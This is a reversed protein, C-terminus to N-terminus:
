SSCIRQSESLFTSCLPILESLRVFTSELLSTSSTRIIQKSLREGPIACHNTCVKKQASTVNGSENVSFVKAFGTRISQMRCMWRKTHLHFMTRATTRVTCPDHWRGTDNVQVSLNSMVWSGPCRVLATRGRNMPTQEDSDKDFMRNLWPQLRVHGIRDVSVAGGKGLFLVFENVYDLHNSLLALKNWLITRRHCQPQCTQKNPHLRWPCVQVSKEM